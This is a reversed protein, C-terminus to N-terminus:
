GNSMFSCSLGYIMLHKLELFCLFITVFSNYDEHLGTIILQSLELDFLPLQITTLSDAITKIFLLYSHVIQDSGLSINMLMRKLDLAHALNDM